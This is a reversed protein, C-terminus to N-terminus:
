IEKLIKEFDLPPNRRIGLESIAQALIPLAITADCYCTVKNANAAIKGWSVAEELTCGSLGGWQPSDTTIQIAYEHPKSRADVGFVPTLYTCIQVFDKPVGGGIYIVGTKESTAVIKTLEELDLTADISILKGKRRKLRVLAIGYASDAIAPSYVPIRKRYAAEVMSRIDKSGLFKGFEWLYARSSYIRHQDLTDSFDEILKEMRRYDDESAYVDYFRDIKYEFLEEDDVLPSGKYYSSGMAEYVDESINAGTSVLVDIYNNEILWRIIKWMGATSMSGSLGMIITLKDDKLMQKYVQFAEGLKRGQYATDKLDELLKSTSRNKVEFTKVKEKFYPNEM